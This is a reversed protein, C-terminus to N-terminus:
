SIPNRIELEPFAPRFHNENRTILGQFRQAFAGILIDAIPRRPGDGHRRRQVHAFWADFAALTDQRTWAETLRVGVGALFEEQLGRSGEFAPALEVYTVPSIALGDAALADLAAASVEGFEPDDELVDILVSTDVVWTM